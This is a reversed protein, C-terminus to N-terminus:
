DLMLLLDLLLRRVSFGFGGLNLYSGARRTVGVGVVFRGCLLLLVRLELNHHLPAVQM